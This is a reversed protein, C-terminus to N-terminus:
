YTQTLLLSQCKLDTPPAFNSEVIFRTQPYHKQLKELLNTDIGTDSTTVIISPLSDIDEFRSNPLIRQWDKITSLLKNIMTTKGNNGTGHLWFINPSTTNSIFAELHQM